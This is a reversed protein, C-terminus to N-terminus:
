AQLADVFCQYGFKKILMQRSAAAGARNLSITTRQAGSQTMEQSHQASPTGNSWCRHARRRHILFEAAVIRVHVM